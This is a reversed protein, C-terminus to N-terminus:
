LQWETVSSTPQPHHARPASGVRPGDWGLRCSASPDRCTRDGSWRRLVCRRVLMATPIWDTDVPHSM